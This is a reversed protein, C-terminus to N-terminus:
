DTTKTYELILFYSYTSTGLNNFGIRIVDLDDRKTELFKGNDPRNYNLPYSQVEDKAYGKIEIFNEITWDIDIYKQSQTNDSEFTGNLVKRYIPKGDIWTGGTLIEDTSYNEGADKLRLLAHLADAVRKNTNFGDKVEFEIVEILAHAEERTM